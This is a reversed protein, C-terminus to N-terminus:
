GTLIRSRRYQNEGCPLTDSRASTIQLSVAQGLLRNYGREAIGAVAPPVAVGYESSQVQALLAVLTGVVGLPFPVDDTPDDTPAYGLDIGDEAMSATLNNFARLAAVGQEASPTEIESIIGLSRLSDTFLTLLIM